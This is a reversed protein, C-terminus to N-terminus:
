EAVGPHRAFWAKSDEDYKQWEPDNYREDPGLDYMNVPYKPKESLWQKYKKRAMLKDGRDAAQRANRERMRGEHEEVLKPDRMEEDSLEDERYLPVPSSTHWDNGYNNIGINAREDLFDARADFNRKLHARVEPDKIQNLRDHFTQRVKPGVEGWWDFAPEYDQSNEHGGGWHPKFPILERLSTDEVYPAFHDEQDGKKKEAYGGPAVYQFNRSQDIALPAGTKENVMLNGGHRDKNNALFDMMAIKRVDMKNAARQELSHETSHFARGGGNAMASHGPSLHVILAPEKEHGPGMDHEAVHVKQHLHGIGGAHFLAQNTMEAWGQIPHKMWSKVRRIVREHYPKVMVKSPEQSGAVKINFIKKRSIGKNRSAEPLGRAASVKKPSKIVGNHYAEVEPGLEPPHANLDPHHDVLKSAEPDSAKVISIFHSPEVHKLLPESKHLMTALHSAGFMPHNSLQGLFEQDGTTHAHMVLGDFHGQQM